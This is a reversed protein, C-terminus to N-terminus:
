CGVTTWQAVERVLRGPAAVSSLFLRYYTGNYHNSVYVYLDLKGDRDADGAWALWWYAETSKGAGGLDYLTQQTGNHSLVLKADDLNIIGDSQSRDQTVVQLKYEEGSLRFLHNTLPMQKSHLTTAAGARLPKLGRVLFLPKGKERIKVIKGDDDFGAWDPKREVKLTVNRLESQGRDAFFGLWKAGTRATVEESHFEGTELLKGEAGPADFITEPFYGLSRGADPKLTKSVVTLQAPPAPQEVWRRVALWVGGVFTTLALLAYGMKRKLERAM